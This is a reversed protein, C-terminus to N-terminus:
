VIQHIQAPPILSGIMAANRERHCRGSGGVVAGASVAAQVTRFRGSGDRAVVFDYGRARGMGGFSLLLLLLLNKM